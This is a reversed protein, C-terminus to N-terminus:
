QVWFIECMVVPGLRHVNVNLLAFSKCSHLLVQRAFFKMYVFSTIKPRMSYLDCMKPLSMFHKLM